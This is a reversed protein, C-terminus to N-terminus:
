GSHCFAIRFKILEFVEEWDPAAGDFIYKNRQLWVSWFITVPIVEWILKKFGNFKWSRWGILLADITPPSVWQVGWWRFCESWVRWVDNCLLLLHDLNRGCFYCQEPNNLIGLKVLLEFTRVRGLWVRPTAANKWVLDLAKFRTGSGGEFLNYANKVSFMGKSVVDWHLYDARDNM